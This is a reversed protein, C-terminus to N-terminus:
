AADVLVGPRSALAVTCGVSLGLVLGDGCGCLVTWVGWGVGSEGM